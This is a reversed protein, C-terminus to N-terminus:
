YSTYHERIEELLTYIRTNRITKRSNEYHEEDMRRSGVQGRTEDVLDGPRLLTNPENILGVKPELPIDQYSIQM